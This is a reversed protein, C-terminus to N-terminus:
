DRFHKYILWTFMLLLGCILIASPLSLGKFLHYITGYIAGHVIASVVQHMFWDNGSQVVFTMM